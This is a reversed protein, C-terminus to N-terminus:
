PATFAPIADIVEFAEPKVCAFGFREEGRFVVENTQWAAHESADVSLPQRSFFYAGDKFAGMLLLGDDGTGRTLPLNSDFVVGGFQRLAETIGGPFLLRGTTDTAIDFEVALVPHVVISLEAPVYFRQRLRSAARAVAAFVEEAAGSAGLPTINVGSTGIIGKPEGTGSGAIIKNDIKLGVQVGFQNQVLDAVQGGTDALDETSVHTTGAAKFVTGIKQAISGTSDPKTGAEPVMEVTVTNGELIIRVEDSETPFETCLARLPAAANRKALYGPLTDPSIFYGGTPDSGGTWGKRGMDALANPDGRRAAYVARLFDGGKRMDAASLDSRGGALQAAWAPDAGPGAFRSPARSTSLVREMAQRVTPDNPDVGRQALATALLDGAMAPAPPAGQPPQGVRIGHEGLEREVAARRSGVNEGSKAREALSRLEAM